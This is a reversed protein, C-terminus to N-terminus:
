YLLALSLSLMILPTFNLQKVEVYEDEDLVQTKKIIKRKPVKPVKFVTSESKLLKMNQLAAEGPRIPKDNETM